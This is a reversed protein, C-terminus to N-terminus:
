ITQNESTVASVPRGGQSIIVYAVIVTAISVLESAFLQLNFPELNRGRIKALKKNEYSIYLFILYFIVVAISNLIDLSSATNNELIGKGKTLIMKDNYVLIIALIASGIYFVTTGIQLDFLKVQEEVVDNM